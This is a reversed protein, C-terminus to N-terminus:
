QNMPDLDAIEIEDQKGKGEHYAAASEYYTASLIKHAPHGSPGGAEGAHYRRLHEGVFGRVEETTPNAGIVLDEGIHTALVCIRQSEDVKSKTSAAM